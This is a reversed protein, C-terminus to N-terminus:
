YDLGVFYNRVEEPTSAKVGKPGLGGGWYHSIFLAHRDDVQVNILNFEPSEQRTIHFSAKPVVRAVEAVWNLLVNKRWRKGNGM